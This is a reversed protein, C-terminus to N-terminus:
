PWQPECADGKPEYINRRSRGPDVSFSENLPGGTETPVATLAGCPAVFITACGGQSRCRFFACLCVCNDCIKDRGLHVCADVTLDLNTLILPLSLMTTKTLDTQM